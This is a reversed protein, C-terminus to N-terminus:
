PVITALGYTANQGALRTQTLTHGVAAFFARLEQGSNCRYYHQPSSALSRMLTEDADTGFAITVLDAIVKLDNAVTEPSPGSNHCGDTFILVVPRLYSIGPEKTEEQLMKLALELGANINTASGLCGTSLSPVNGALASAKTLQQVMKAKKAFDVIGVKFGDKNTPDALASVLDIRADSAAKAKQGAMSPSGDGVLCASQRVNSCVWAPRSLGSYLFASQHHQPSNM